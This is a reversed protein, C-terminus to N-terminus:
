VLTIGFTKALMKRVRDVQPQARINRDPRAQRATEIGARDYPTILRSNGSLATCFVNEARNSSGDRSSPLHISRTVFLLRPQVDHHTAWRPVTRQLAQVIKEPVLFLRKRRRTHVRLPAHHTERFLVAHRHQQITLAGVLHEGPIM